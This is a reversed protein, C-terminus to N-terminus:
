TAGPLAPVARSGPMSFTAIPASSRSPKSTNARSLAMSRVTTPGSAGSTAPM